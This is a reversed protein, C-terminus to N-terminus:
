DARDCRSMGVLKVELQVTGYGELSCSHEVKDNLYHGGGLGCGPGGPVPEDPTGADGGVGFDFYGSPYLCTGFGGFVLGECSIEYRYCFDGAAVHTEWEPEGSWCGGGAPYGGGATCPDIPDGFAQLEAVGYQGDGGIGVIRLRNAIIPEPLEEIPRTHMGSTGAMAPVHWAPHWQPNADNWFEILYEDTDGQFILSDIQFFGELEIELACPEPPPPPEGPPHPPVHMCIGDVWWSGHFWDTGPPLFDGDAVVFPPVGPEEIGIGFPGGFEHVPKGLAINGQAQLLDPLLIAGAAILVRWFM